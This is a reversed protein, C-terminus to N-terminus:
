FDRKLLHEIRHEAMLAIFREVSECLTAIEDTLEAVKWLKGYCDPFYIKYGEDQNGLASSQLGLIKSIKQVSQLFSNCISQNRKGIKLHTKLVHGNDYLGREGERTEQRYVWVGDVPYGDLDSSIVYRYDSYLDEVWRKAARYIRFCEGVFHPETYYGSLRNLHDQERAERYGKVVEKLGDKSESVIGRFLVRKGRKEIPYLHLHKPVPEISEGLSVYDGIQIMSVLPVSPLNRALDHHGLSKLWGEASMPAMEIVRTEAQVVKEFREKIHPLMEDSVEDFCEVEVFFGMRAARLREVKFRGPMLTFLTAALYEAASQDIMKEKEM